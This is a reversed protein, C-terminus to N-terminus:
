SPKEVNQPNKSMISPKKFKIIKKKTTKQSKQRNKSM